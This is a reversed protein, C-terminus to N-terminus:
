NLSQSAIEVDEDLYRELVGYDFPKPVLPFSQAAEPGIYGSTVIVKKDPFFFRLFRLWYDGGFGDMRYDTVISDVTHDLLQKIAGIGDSAVHVTFGQRKLFDRLTLRIADEDEVLLVTKRAM